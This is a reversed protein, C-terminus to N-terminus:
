KRKRAAKRGNSENRRKAKTSKSAKRTSGGGGPNWTLGTPGYSLGDMASIGAMGLVLATSLKLKSM